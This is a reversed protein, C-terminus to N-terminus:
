LTGRNVGLRVIEIIRDVMVQAMALGGLSSFFRPLLKTRIDAEINAPNISHTAVAEHVISDIHLAESVLWDEGRGRAQEEGLVLPFLGFFAKALINEGFREPVKPNQRKAAQEEL